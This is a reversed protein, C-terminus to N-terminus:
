SYFIVKQGERRRHTKIWRGVERGGGEADLEGGEGEEM